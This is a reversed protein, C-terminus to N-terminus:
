GRRRFVWRSEDSAGPDFGYGESDFEQLGVTDNLCREAAFRTMLGRARKAHIAVVKWKGSKWEQFVPTVVDAKLAPFDVARSYEVSALNVLVSAKRRKLEKRIADTVTETWYAYLDRGKPNPLRAGMELRHPQILDLPRLVGYLGSLIRVHAQAWGIQEEELTAAQLGRYVDGDFAFVAQKANEPDPKKQWSAYRGANMVALQDSIGMLGALQSPSQSQLLRALTDAQGSLEPLSCAEIPSKSRVDIRKAPSLLILMNAPPSLIEAM